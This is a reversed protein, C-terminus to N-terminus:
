RQANLKELFVLKVFKPLASQRLMRSPQSLLRYLWELHVARWVRPARKVRGAIVDFTGGVGQIVNATIESKYQNIFYEQKPSGLAVFLLDAQSDNIQKVINPYDKEDLYGHHRGAVILDAFREELIQAAELNVQESAGFAFISFGQKAAMSCLEPMLESGPVRSATAENLLRMAVVAGIGDPILLEAKTIADNLRPDDKCAIIKEPNVALIAAKSNTEISNRAFKVAEKMSVADVPIGLIEYRKFTM